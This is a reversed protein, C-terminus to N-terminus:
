CRARFRCRARSAAGAAAAPVLEYNEPFTRPFVCWIGDTDLELPRGFRCIMDKAMKIIQAGTHTVIGAMEMSYWRAGRRMVYGYFSNLICKHALQLSDYIIVMNRARIQEELSKAAGLTAQWQKHARKYDYRRDRFARVTDVYFANERQCVTAARQEEVEVHARRYVTQAYAKLRKRLAADREDPPLQAYAREVELQARVQRTEAASAPIYDGRWTWAAALQCASEPQNFDCAACTDAGVIATPQLRYTLIINPYMAAVDLHYILPCEARRPADRLDALQARVQAVVADFNAVDARGGAFGAERAGFEVIAPAEDALQQLADRELEFRMPVDARFVGSLLCEVHGGVYTESELLHGRYTRGRDARTKNPYIVNARTAEVMLLAECLTGSGKRLVDDPAMPVVNCLSFIFPHVYKMYLYYTAVADSVSYSALRQPQETAFPLMEEPDIELPDYGLKKRTVAKLGQSGQPLYSDRVVWRFADMHAVCRGRYETDQQQALARVGLVDYLAIGYHRARAEIFPWDFFDGNFTVYIHPRRARMEAFFRELTAREDRENFVRFRGEYEPKPTYEFDAIDESVIDRNVILYGDTDLMYSIMMVHDIAADPFRLPEKTTEIDFACIRMDPREVLDPRPAVRLGSGDSELQVDFWQGCRIDLDIAVRMYYPVDYERIDIISDVVDQQQQPVPQQEASSQRRQNSQVISQLENRVSMLAHVTHFSIKLFRRRIGALHNLLDMDEKAVVEIAAIGAAEFRRRVYNDVEPLADDTAVGVYLYPQFALTAKFTDGAESLFYLDVASKKVGSESDEQLTPQMNILFGLRKRHDAIRAYGFQLELADDKESVDRMHDLRESVNSNNDDTASAGSTQRKRRLFDQQKRKYSNSSM